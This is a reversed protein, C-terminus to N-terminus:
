LSEAVRARLAAELRGLTFRVREVQAVSLEGLLAAEAAASVSGGLEALEGVRAALADVGSLEVSAAELAARLQLAATRLREGDVDRRARLALEECILVPLRQGLAAALRSQPELIRSRKVRRRSPLLERAETWEGDAVEEGQGYGVRAVLLQDRGVPEAFPDATVVQFTHLSRALVALHEALVAEGADALWRAAAAADVFPEAAAIVTARGTTVLAPEPSPDVARTRRGRPARPAAGLTAFVLVHTPQGADAGDSRVLYRGDPPGLAWPVEIQSFAFWPL